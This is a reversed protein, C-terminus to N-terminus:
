NITTHLRFEFWLLMAANTEGFPCGVKRYAAWVRHYLALIYRQLVPPLEAVAEPDFTFSMPRDPVEKM